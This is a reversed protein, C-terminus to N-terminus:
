GEKALCLVIFEQIVFLGYLPLEARRQFFDIYLHYVEPLLSQLNAQL